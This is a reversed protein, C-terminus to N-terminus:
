VSQQNKSRKRLLRSCHSVWQHVLFIERLGRALKENGDELLKEAAHLEEKTNKEKDNRKKMKENLSEKEKAAEQKQKELQACEEKKQQRNEEEERKQKEQELREKYVRHSGRVYGILEKTLHVCEPQM